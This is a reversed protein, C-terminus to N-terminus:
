YWIFGLFVIIIIWQWVTLRVDVTCSATLPKGDKDTAERGTLSDIVVASIVASGKGRKTATVIGNNDVAAVSSDSSKWVIRFNEAGNKVLAANIKASDRYKLSLSTKDLTLSQPVIRTKVPKITVGGVKLEYDEWKFTYGNEVPPEPEEISETEVTYKVTKIVKGKEDVFKADYKIPTYVANVVIGGPKLTYNEWKVTYGEKAPATPEDISVSDVTYTREAVTKGYAVFKATYEILSYVPRITIGGSRLEYAEWKGDKCGAAEPVPPEDISETEFTYKVVAVNNGDKDVFKAEYEGPTYVANIETGGPRLEYDEWTGIYWDKEPVAPETVSKTMATYKVTGVTRGDAIFSATYETMDFNFVPRLGIDTHNVISGDSINGQYEVDSAGRSTKGPSRLWWNSCYTGDSLTFEHDVYLGQCLAYDTGSARRKLASNLGYSTNIIDYYSLIAIKDTTSSTFSADFASKTEREVSAIKAKEGEDFATDYFTGNLFPLVTSDKYSNAYVTRESDKYYNTDNESDAYLTDSFSQSDIIKECIVLGTAPDLVRWKLPEYRFWYTTDIFYGNEAQHTKEESTDSKYNTFSKRYSSFRVGRYYEGNLEADCYKMYDAKEASGDFYYLGGGSMYGYSKWEASLANLASVTASDTVKTQPYRGFEIIDGTRYGTVGKGDAVASFAFLGAPAAGFAMILALMLAFIKILMKKSKM